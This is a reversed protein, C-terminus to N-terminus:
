FEEWTDDTDWDSKKQHGDNHGHETAGGVAKTQQVPDGKPATWGGNRKKEFDDFGGFGGSSSPKLDRDNESFGGFGGFGGFLAGNSGGTTSGNERTTPSISSSTSKEKKLSEAKNLLENWDDDADNNFGAFGGGASAVATANTEVVNKVYSFGRTGGEVAKQQLSSLTSTLNNTLNPDTLTTAAPKIVNETVIESAKSVTSTFMSWGLNLAQLPDALLDASKQQQPQPTSGFGAYKGGQSPPLDARRNENEVGKKKEKYLRAFESNYKDKISMGERWASHAKFFALAKDNGGNLMRKKQDDSWKDMSLSRVFSLHTGLSRHQGSCELCFVIGYTVSAWTPNFVGCDFCTKDSVQM